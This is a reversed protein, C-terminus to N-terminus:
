AKRSTKKQAKRRCLLVTDWWLDKSKKEVHLILCIYTALRANLGKQRDTTHLQGGLSSKPRVVHSRNKTNWDIQKTREQPPSRFAHIAHRQAWGWGARAGVYCWRVNCTCAFTSMGVGGWGIGSMADFVDFFPPGNPRVNAYVFRSVWLFWELRYWVYLVDIEDVVQTIGGTNLQPELHGKSVNGLVDEGTATTTEAKVM